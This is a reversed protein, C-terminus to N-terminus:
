WIAVIGWIIVAWLAGSVLGVFFWATLISWRGAHARWTHYLIM